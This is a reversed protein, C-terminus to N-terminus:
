INLLNIRQLIPADFAGIVYISMMRQGRLYLLEVCIFSVTKISEAYMGVCTKGDGVYGPVCKCEYKGPGTDTCTAYFPHCDDGESGCIPPVLNCFIIYLM